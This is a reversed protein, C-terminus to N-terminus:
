WYGDGINRGVLVFVVLELAFYLGVVLWATRRGLKRFAFLFVYMSFFSAVSVSFATLATDQLFESGRISLGVRDALRVSSVSKYQTGMTFMPWGFSLFILAGMVWVKWLERGSVGDREGFSANILTLGIAPLAVLAAMLWFFAGMMASGPEIGVAVDGVLRAFIPQVIFMTSLVFVVVAVFGLCGRAAGSAPLGIRWARDKQREQSSSM